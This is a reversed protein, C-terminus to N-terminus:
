LEEKLSEIFKLWLDEDILKQTEEELWVQELWKILQETKLPEVKEIQQEASISQSSIEGATEQSALAPTMTEGMGEGMMMFGAPKDWASQWLWDECFVALDNYDIRNNVPTGINCDPDWNSNGPQSQWANTFRAYDIFNVIRDGNFDAPSWYFEDAGMDVREIGDANGDKVRGEGDIDTEGAYDAFPNGADICPSNSSLHFNNPDNPDNYFLPDDDINGNNTDGNQICSYRVNQFDGNNAHLQYQGSNNYWVICNSINADDAVYSNIGYSANNVITNNRIVAPGPTAYYNYIYIGNGDNNTGNNHIWNNKVEIEVGQGIEKCYIGNGRNGRIISNTITTSPTYSDYIGNGANNQIACNSVTLNSYECYIGAGSTSNAININCDAITITCWGGYIGYCNDEINCNVINTSSYNYCYVGYYANTLTFGNLVSGSNNNFTVLEGFHNSGSIITNEVVNWNDPNTSRLTISKDLFDIYEYFTGTSAVLIDSNNADDIAARIRFYYTGQTINHVVPIRQPINKDDTTGIGLRGGAGKGWTWITGEADVAICHWHGASIAVVNELYGENPEHIGNKNLDPGVVKVPTTCPDNTGNGLQGFQNDGWAYVRGNTDLAMSHGEGAAIAVIHELYQKSPDQEGALVLVPKNSDEYTGNGLRGGVSAINPDNPDGGGYGPGNNGWTYVRGKCTPCQWNPNWPDDNELAMCHDWGAAIAVIHELFNVDNVGHVKVPTDNFDATSGTGLLGNGDPIWGEEYDEDGWRNTGWTYVCGNLNPDNPDDKELAMSQDAGASIAIIHKLYLNPNNADQPQEGRLVRVPTLENSESVNNGCQGYNNKGWAYVLSNADMALSHNGSRGASIATIYQLFSNPNGPNQEGSKVRVPTTRTYQWGDGCQGYYGNGWAWVFSNVDLALSHMWGAAINNIDQLYSTNMDGGLVQILTWQDVNNGTGLQYFYNSGCAWVFKNESLVLTHDEGGSVKLLNSGQALQAFTTAFTFLAVALVFRKTSDM